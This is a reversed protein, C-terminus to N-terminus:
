LDEFVCSQNRGTRWIHIFAEEVVAAARVDAFVHHDAEFTVTGGPQLEDIVLGTSTPAGRLPGRQVNLKSTLAAATPRDRGGVTAPPVVPLQPLHLSQHEM